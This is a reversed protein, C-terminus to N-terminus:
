NYLYIYLNFFWLCLLDGIWCFEYYRWDKPLFLFYLSLPLSICNCYLYFRLLKFVWHSELGGLKGEAGTVGIECLLSKILGLFYYLFYYIAINFDLFSSNFLLILVKILKEYCLACYNLCYFLMILCYIKNKFEFICRVGM